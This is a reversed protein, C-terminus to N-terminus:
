CCAFLVGGRFTSCADANGELLAGASGRLGDRNVHAGRDVGDTLRSAQSPPTRPEDKRALPYIGTM